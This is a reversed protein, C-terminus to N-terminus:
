QIIEVAVKSGAGAYIDKDFLNGSAGKVVVRHKGPKIPLVATKKGGFASALGFSVGDVEVTAGAPAQPVFLVTPTSGQEVTSVPYACGLLGGAIVALGISVLPKM